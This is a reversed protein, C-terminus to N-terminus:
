MGRLSMCADWAAQFKADDQEVYCEIPAKSGKVVLQGHNVGKRFHGVFFSGVGGPLEGTALDKVIKPDGVQKLFAVKDDYTSGPADITVAVLTDGPGFTKVISKDDNPTSSLLKWGDPLKICFGDPDTYAGQACDGKPAAPPPAEAPKAAPPASEVQVPAAGATKEAPKAPAPTDEQKKKCASVTLLSTVTFLTVLRIM